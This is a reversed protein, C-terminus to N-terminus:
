KKKKKDGKAKKDKKEDGGDDGAELKALAKRRATAGTILSAFETFNRYEDEFVCKTKSLATLFDTTELQKKGDTIQQM